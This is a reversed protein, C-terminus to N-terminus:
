AWPLGPLGHALIAGNRRASCPHPELGKWEGPVVPHGPPVRCSPMPGASLWPFTRFRVCLRLSSRTHRRTSQGTRDVASLHHRFRSALHHDSCQWPRLAPGDRGRLVACCTCKGRERDEGWGWGVLVGPATSGRYMHHSGGIPRGVCVDAIAAEERCQTRHRPRIWPCDQWNPCSHSVTRRNALPLPIPM